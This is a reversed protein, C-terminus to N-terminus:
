SMQHSCVSCSQMGSDETYSCKSVSPCLVISHTQRCHMRHYLRCWYVDTYRLSHQAANRQHMSVHSWQYVKSVARSWKLWLQVVFQQRWIFRVNYRGRIVPICCGCQCVAVQLMCVCLPRDFGIVRRELWGDAHGHCCDFIDARLYFHWV